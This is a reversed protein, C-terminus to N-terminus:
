WKFTLIDGSSSRINDESAKFVKTSSAGGPGAVATTAFMVAKSKLNYNAFNNETLTPIGYLGLGGAIVEQQEVSLEIFLADSM